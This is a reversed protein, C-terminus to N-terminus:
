DEYDVGGSILLQKVNYHSYNLKCLSSFEYVWLWKAWRM